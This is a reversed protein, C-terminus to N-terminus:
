SRRSRRTLKGRPTLTVSTTRASQLCGLGAGRASGLKITAPQKNKGKGKAKVKIIPALEYANANDATGANLAGSFDLVLVTEKKAKKGKGVKITEVQLSQVTM